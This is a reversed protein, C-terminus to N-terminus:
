KLKLKSLADALGTNLVEDQKDQKKLYKSVEGKSLRNKEKEKRKNFSSLKERYGCQCTFIQGEGQGKLELRKKCNPCRANTTQSISIRKGCERDQCVYMKGRKGKVELMFKGCEPCKTRTINDHKFQLDSSKIEKVIKKSYDKIEEIFKERKLKGQEILVLKKEWQGTLDPSKLDEPVLELLQKGKGTILMDKGRNEILFTKYLKEIIDARTAVTGIGGTENLINALEKDKEEMYKVPNEMAMLLTGETFYKPPKTEGITKQINVINLSDGENILPLTQDKVDEEAEDELDNYVEKFGEKIVRKGKAVFKEEDIKATIKTEEYEFPPYLVSLFRKVVLDYIQREKFNLDGLNLRQETPIIAHHDTVKKSDVFSKNAKIPKNILKGVIPKYDGVNISKLRDKITSVIDESLYKSDTRPYTLVKHNEYLNQMLSLTEKASFGYRKNADRQLETLNYLGNAYTKKLTKEVNTVKLEKGKLKKLLNDIYNEDFNRTNNNKDQWTLNIEKTRIGIGYYKKPKFTKVEEERKSIMSLTPSQVRGCSLQSNYKVTLARTANLGVVWDAESRAIAAQYLNEYVKGPKLSKFGDRIAKDTVSSIWLRKIPKRVNAKEIIWRAVLEGERGADTAIIIENVDNRMMQKKVAYFQKKTDNIVVLKSEKPLIPLDELNWTKYKKDYEEPTALTVLHGLAWTIIYEKGELYGDGKKNAGLVRAIDRAVSPKEALVLSKSM